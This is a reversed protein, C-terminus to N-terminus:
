RTTSTSSRPSLTVTTSEGTRFNLLLRRDKKHVENLEELTTDSPQLAFLQDGWRLYAPRGEADHQLLMNFPLGAGMHVWALHPEAFKAEFQQSM